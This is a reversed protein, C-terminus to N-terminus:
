DDPPRDVVYGAVLDLEKMGCKVCRGSEWDPHDCEQADTSATDVAVSAPQDQSQLYARVGMERDIRFEQADNYEELTEAQDGDAVGAYIWPEPADDREQKMWRQAGDSPQFRRYETEHLLADFRRQTDSVDDRDWSKSLYKFLYAAPNALQDLPRIDIEEIAHAEMRATECKEVHKQMVSRLRGAQVPGDCVVVPHLHPYGGDTYGEDTTPEWVQLYEWDRSPYTDKRRDAEMSHHLEYRVGRSWSRKLEQFVDVPPRYDGTPTTYSATLAPFIVIYPNEYEEKAGRVFDNMQAYQRKTYSSTWRHTYPATRIEGRNEVGDGIFTLYKDKKEELYREHDQVLDRWRGVSGSSVPTEDIPTQPRVVGTTSM